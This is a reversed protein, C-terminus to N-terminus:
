KRSTRRHRNSRRLRSLRKTGSKRRLPRRTTRKKSSRSNRASVGGGGFENFEQAHKIGEKEEEDNFEDVNKRVFYELVVKSQFKKLYKDTEKVDKNTITKTFNHPKQNSKSIYLMGKYYDNKSCYKNLMNLYLICVDKFVELYKDKDTDTDTDIKNIETEGKDNIAQIISDNFEKEDKEGTIPHTFIKEECSTRRIDNWKTVEAKQETTLAATDGM